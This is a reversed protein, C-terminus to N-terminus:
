TRLYEGCQNKGNKIKKLFDFLAGKIVFRNIITSKLRVHIQFELSLKSYPIHRTFLVNKSGGMPEIFGAIDRQGDSNKTSVMFIIMSRSFIESTPSLPM